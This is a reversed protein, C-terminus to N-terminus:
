HEEEQQLARSLIFAGAIDASHTLLGAVKPPVVAAPLVALAQRLARSLLRRSPIIRGWHLLMPIQQFSPYGGFLEDGGLGSLAVKLGQRAVARSILYSNLGDISPQDMSNFFDELVSEFEDRDIRVTAHETQLIRATTEALAAEDSSTGAYERFALTVTQLKVGTQAALAAIVTSDIGASLFLGVPVDAELHHRVSDLLVDRLEGAALAPASESRYADQVRFFARPPPVAKGPRIRQLHGAPFMRIGAWWSFPEPVHGWLYFGTLAAPERRTDVPACTALARAQSAFWLVGSAEAVYLPKIGFPDRVV